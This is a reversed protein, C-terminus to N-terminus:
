RILKLSVGAPVLDARFAEVQFDLIPVQDIVVDRESAKGPGIGRGPRGHRRHAKREILLILDDAQVLGVLIGEPFEEAILFSSQIEEANTSESM